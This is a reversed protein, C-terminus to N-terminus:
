KIKTVKSDVIDVPYKYDDTSGQILARKKGRSEYLEIIEGELLSGAFYFSVSDKLKLKM